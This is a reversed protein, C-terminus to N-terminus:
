IIFIQAIYNNGINMSRRQKWLKGGEIYDNSNQSINKDTMHKYENRPTNIHQDNEAFNIDLNINIDQGKDHKAFHYSICVFYILIDLLRKAM